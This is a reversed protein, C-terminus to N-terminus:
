NFRFRVLEILLSERCLRAAGNGTPRTGKNCLTIADSWTIQQKAM